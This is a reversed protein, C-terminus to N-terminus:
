APVLPTSHDTDNEIKRYSVGRFNIEGHRHLDALELRQTNMDRLLIQYPRDWTSCSFGVIEVRGLKGDCELERFWGMLDHYDLHNTAPQSYDM